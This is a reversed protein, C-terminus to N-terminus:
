NDYYLYFEHPHPRLRIPDLEKTRKVSDFFCDPDKKRQAKRWTKVIQRAVKRLTGLMYHDLFYADEGGEEASMERWKRVSKASQFTPEMGVWADDFSSSTPDLTRELALGNIATTKKTGRM